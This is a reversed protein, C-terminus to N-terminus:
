RKKLEPDSVRVQETNGLLIGETMLFGFSKKSEIEELSYDQKKIKKKFDFNQFNNKNAGVCDDDTM